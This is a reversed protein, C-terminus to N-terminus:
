VSDFWVQSQSQFRFEWFRCSLVKLSWAIRLVVTRISWDKRQLYMLCSVINFNEIPM